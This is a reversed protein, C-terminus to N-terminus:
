TLKLSIEESAELHLLSCIEYAYIIKKELFSFIILM